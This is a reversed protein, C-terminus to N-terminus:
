APPRFRKSAASARGNTDSAPAATVTTTAAHVCITAGSATATRTEAAKVASARKHSRERM